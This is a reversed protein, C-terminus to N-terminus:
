NARGHESSWNVQYNQVSSGNRRLIPQLLNALQSATLICRRSKWHRSTASALSSIGSACSQEAVLAGNRCHVSTMPSVGILSRFILRCRRAVLLFAEHRLLWDYLLTDSFCPPSRVPRLAVHWEARGGMCDSDMPLAERCRTQATHAFPSDWEISARLWDAGNPAPPRGRVWEWVGSTLARLRRRM